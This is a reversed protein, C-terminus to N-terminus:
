INVTPQEGLAKAAAKLHTLVRSAYGAIRQEATENPNGSFYRTNFLVRAFDSASGDSAAQLLGAARGPQRSKYTSRVLARAGEEPSPWKQFCKTGADHAEFTNPGCPPTAPNALIAGWNNSGPWALGYFESEHGTMGHLLQLESRSPSRGMEIKFANRLAARGAAHDLTTISRPSPEGNLASSPKAEVERSLIAITAASVIGVIWALANM